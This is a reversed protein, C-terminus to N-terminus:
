GTGPSGWSEAGLVCRPVQCCWICSCPQWSCGEPVTSEDEGQGPYLTVSGCLCHCWILGAAGPSTLTALLPKGTAGSAALETNGLKSWTLSNKM